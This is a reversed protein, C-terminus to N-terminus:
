SFPFKSYMPFCRSKGLQVQQVRRKLFHSNNSFRSYHSTPQSFDRKRLATSDAGLYTSSLFPVRNGFSLITKGNRRKRHGPASGCVLRFLATALPVSAPARAFEDGAGSRPKSGAFLSRRGSQLSGRSRTPCSTPIQGATGKRSGPRDIFRPPGQRQKEKRGIQYKANKTGNIKGKIAFLRLLPRGDWGHNWRVSDVVAM